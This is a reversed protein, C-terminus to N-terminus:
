PFKLETDATIKHLGDGFQERFAMIVKNLLSSAADEPYEADTM